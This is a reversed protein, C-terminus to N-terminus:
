KVPAASAVPLYVTPGYENLVTLRGDQDRHFLARFAWTDGEGRCNLDFVQANDIGAVAGTQSMDCVSEEGQFQGGAIVLVPCSSNLGNNVVCEPVDAIGWHGEYLSAQAAAGSAAGCLAWTLVALKM